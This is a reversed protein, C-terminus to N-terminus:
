EKIGLIKVIKNKDFGIIIEGNIEVVPIAMQKSKEIMEDRAKEDQSVDFEKFEINHETLFQKLASCYVCFPSSFVKVTSKM